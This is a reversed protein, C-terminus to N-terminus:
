RACVAKVLVETSVFIGIKIFIRHKALQIDSIGKSSRLGGGGEEQIAEWLFVDVVLIKLNRGIFRIPFVLLLPCPNALNEEVFDTIWLKKSRESVVGREAVSLKIDITM